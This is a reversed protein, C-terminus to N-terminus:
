VSVILLILSGLLLYGSLARHTPHSVLSPKLVLNLQLVFLVAYFATLLFLSEIQRSYLQLLLFAASIFSIALSLQALKRSGLVVALTLKGRLRDGRIDKVDNFLQWSAYYLSVYIIITLSATSFHNGLGMIGPLFLYSLSMILFKGLPHFSWPKQPRSYLYGLLLMLSLYFVNLMPHKTFMAIFLSTGATAYALHYLPSNNLSILPLPLRRQNLQDIDRDCLFNLISAYAYGSIFSLPILILDPTVVSQSSLRFGLFYFLIPSRANHVRFLRLWDRYQKFLLSLQPM